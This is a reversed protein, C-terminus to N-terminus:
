NGRLRDYLQNVHVAHLFENLLNKQIWDLQKQTYPADPKGPIQKFEKQLAPDLEALGRNIYGRQEKIDRLIEAKDGGAANNDGSVIELKGLGATSDAAESKPMSSAKSESSSDYISALLLTQEAEATDSNHEAPYDYKDFNSNDSM